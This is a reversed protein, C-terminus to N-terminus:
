LEWGKFRQSSVLIINAISLLFFAMSAFICLQCLPFLTSYHFLLSPPEYRERVDRGFFYFYMTLPPQTDNVLCCNLSLFDSPYEEAATTAAGIPNYSVRINGYNTCDVMIQRCNTHVLGVM